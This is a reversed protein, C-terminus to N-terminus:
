PGFTPRRHKFIRKHWKSKPDDIWDMFDPKILDVLADMDLGYRRFLSLFEKMQIKDLKTVDVSVLLNTGVGKITGVSGIRSLWEFMSDEDLDSYFWLRSIDIEITVNHRTM